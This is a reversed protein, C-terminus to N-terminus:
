QWVGSAILRDIERLAHALSPASTAAVDPRWAERAYDSIRSVYEPGVRGASDKPPVMAKRIEASHSKRCVNVLAEKPDPLDEVKIPIVSRAVSFTKAFTEPDALLWAELARVALRFCMGPAQRAAPLLMERLTVPCDDGDRDSDRLIFWPSNVAANNYSAVKKDFNPKGRTVFIRRPDVTISRSALIKEAAPVDSTGEVAISVTVM